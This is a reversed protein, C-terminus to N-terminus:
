LRIVKQVGMEPTNGYELFWDIMMAAGALRSPIAAVCGVRSGGPQGNVTRGTRNYSM